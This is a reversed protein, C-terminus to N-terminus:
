QNCPKMVGQVKPLLQIGEWSSVLSKRVYHVARFQIEIDYVYYSVCQPVFVNDLLAAVLQLSLLIDFSFEKESDKWCSIQHTTRIGHSAM